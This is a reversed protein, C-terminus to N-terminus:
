QTATLHVRSVRGNADFTIELIKGGGLTGPPLWYFGWECPFQSNKPCYDWLRRDIGLAEIIQERSVGILLKVDGADAPDRHVPTSGNEAAAVIERRLAVLRDLVAQAQGRAEFCALFSLTSLIFLAIARM